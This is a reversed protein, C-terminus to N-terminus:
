ESVRALSVLLILRKQKPLVNFMRSARCTPPMGALHAVSFLSVTKSTSILESRVTHVTRHKKVADLFHIKFNGVYSSIEEIHMVVKTVNSANTVINM